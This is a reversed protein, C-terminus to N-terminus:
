KNKENRGKKREKKGYKMISSYLGNVNTVDRFVHQTETVSLKLIV